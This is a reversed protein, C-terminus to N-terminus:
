YGKILVKELDARVILSVLENFKTKAEWGLKEKAKAPNGVLLDVETSRYYSPSVEVIPPSFLKNANLKIADLLNANLVNTERILLHQNNVEKM